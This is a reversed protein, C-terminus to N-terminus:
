NDRKPFTINKTRNEVFFGAISNQADRYLAWLPMLRGKIITGSDYPSRFAKEELSDFRSMVYEKLASFLLCYVIGSKQDIYLLFDTDSTYFWGTQTHENPRTISTELFINGTRKMQADLKVEMKKTIGNQTVTFDYGLKDSTCDEVDFGHRSFYDMMLREGFKGTELMEQMRMPYSVVMAGKQQTAIHYAVICSIILVGRTHPTDKIDYAFFTLSM